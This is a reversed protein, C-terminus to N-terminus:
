NEPQHNETAKVIADDVQRALKIVDENGEAYDQRTLTDWDARLEILAALLDPTANVTRDKAWNLRYDPLVVIETTSDCFSNADGVYHGISDGQEEYFQEMAEDESEAEIEYFWHVECQHTDDIYFTPM